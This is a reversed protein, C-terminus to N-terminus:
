FTIKLENGITQASFVGGRYDGLLTLTQNASGNAFSLTAATASESAGAFSWGGGILLADDSGATDFGGIKSHFDALDTLSLTENSGTLTVSQGAAVTNDFELTASGSITAAGTGYVKGQIDFVGSQAEIGGAGSAYNYITPAVTATGTGTMALAGPNSASAAITISSAPDAGLDITSGGTLTLSGGATIALQAADTAVADGIVLANPWASLTAAGGVVLRATGGVVLVNDITASKVNLVGAGSIIVGRNADGLNASETLTLNKGNLALTVDGDAGFAGSYTINEGLSLTGGSVYWTKVLIKAGYALEFSGGGDFALAGAGSITGSFSNTSGKFDIEGTPIAITGSSNFNVFFITVGSFLLIKGRNTFGTGTAAATESLIWSGGIFEWTAGVDNLITSGDSLTM